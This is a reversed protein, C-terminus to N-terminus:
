SKARAIVTKFWEVLASEGNRLADEHLDCLTYNVDPKNDKPNFINKMQRQKGPRQCRNFECPIPM